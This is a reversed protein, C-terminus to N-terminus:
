APKVSARVEKKKGKHLIAFTGITTVINTFIIVYTTIVLFVNADAINYSLALIALTAPTVGQAISIIIAKRDSKMESKFTSIHVAIYRSFFLIVLIIGGISLGFILNSFSLSLILGLLVFFFTKLLFTIEGQLRFLQRELNGMRIKKKLLGSIFTHNGLIIGFIIVALFGSGGAYNTLSFTLFLLGLTLVYTYNRKKLYNLLYIWLISLVLGIVVGISFSSLITTSTVYIDTIHVGYGQITTSISTVQYLSVFTLFLIILVISNLASELTLFTVSSPKLNLERSLPIVVVATTEGGIISALILSPILSIHLIFMSFLVIFVASIAIYLFVQLFVRWGEKLVTDLKLDIGGHFLVMILTLEAFISIVPMLLNENILGLVPGIIFGIFVLFLFSPIHTRRFIEEGIFGLLIILAAVSLIFSTADVAM